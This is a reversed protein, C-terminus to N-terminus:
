CGRIRLPFHRAQSVGRFRQNCKSRAGVTGGSLLYGPLALRAVERLENRVELFIRRACAHRM